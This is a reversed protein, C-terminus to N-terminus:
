MFKNLESYTKIMTCCVHENNVQPIYYFNGVGCLGINSYEYNPVRNFIDQMAKRKWLLAGGAISHYDVAIHYLCETIHEWNFRHCYLDFKEIPLNQGFAKGLFYFGIEGSQDEFEFERNRFKAVLNATLLTGVTSYDCSIVCHEKKTKEQVSDYFHKTPCPRLSQFTEKLCIKVVAIIENFPIVNVNMNRAYFLLSIELDAANFLSMTWGRRYTRVTRNGKLQSSLKVSTLLLLDRIYVNKIPTIFNWNESIIAIGDFLHGSAVIQTIEEDM